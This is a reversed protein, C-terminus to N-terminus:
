RTSGRGTIAGQASEGNIKVVQKALLDRDLMFNVTVEQPQSNAAQINTTNQNNNQTGIASAAAGGAVRGTGVVKSTTAGIAATGAAAAMSAVFEVNKRTPIGKITDGIKELNAAAEPQTLATFFSNIGGIITSFMKGLSNFAKTALEIPNFLEVFNSALSGISSGIKIIGELFNSAYQEKFLKDALGSFVGIVGTIVGIITTFNTVIFTGVKGLAALKSGVTFVLGSLLPLKAILLGFLKGIGLLPAALAALKVLLVTGIIFGLAKMVKGITQLTEPEMSGFFERVKEAISSFLGGVLKFPYIFGAFLEGLLSVNDNGTEISSMLMAIGGIIAGIPGGTGLGVLVGTLIKFVTINDSVIKLLGSFADILPTLIPIMQAFIANLKEQFSATERARDRLKALEQSSKMTEDTVSEMDGSLVAALDSVDGLGLADTYFLRQYYSMEDFSLGTDLIADRIQGFRAAPDTEMMLDMANVFNGGLAANLKGAQRAAGEFTDFQRTLNLIKNMELGTVKMTKALGKFAEMGNDGLKALDGGSALADSGLKELPVGLNTAFKELNALEKVGQKGTMGFSKTMLQLSGAVAENSLGMKNLAATNITIMKKAEASQLTFDTFGRTLSTAAAFMDESTAAFKRGEQYTTTITRAFADSANTARIFAAEGDGLDKALKLINVALALAAGAAAKMGMQKLAAGAGGASKSLKKFDRISGMIKDPNLISDIDPATGSLMSSLSKSLSDTSKKLEDSAKKKKTLEKKREKLAAINKQIEVTNSGMEKSLLQNREIELDLLDIEAQHIENLDTTAAMARRTAAEHVDLAATAGRRYEIEQQIVANAKDRAADAADSQVRALELQADTLGQLQDRLDGVAGGQAQLADLLQQIQEPTV